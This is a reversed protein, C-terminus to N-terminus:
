IAPDREPVASGSLAARALRMATRYTESGPALSEWAGARGGHIEEFMRKAVLQLQHPPPLEGRRISDILLPERLQWGAAAAGTDSPEMAEIGLSIM